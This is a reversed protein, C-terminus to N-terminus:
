FRLKKRVIRIIDIFGDISLTITIQTLLATLYIHKKGVFDVVIISLFVMIAALIIIITYIAYDSKSIRTIGAKKDTVRMYVLVLLYFICASLIFFLWRIAYIIVDITTANTNLTIPPNIHANISPMKMNNDRLLLLYNRISKRGAIDQIERKAQLRINIPLSTDKSVVSLTQITEYKDKTFSLSPFSTFLDIVFLTIIAAFLVGIKHLPKAAKRFEDFFREIPM